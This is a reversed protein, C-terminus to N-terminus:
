SHPCFTECPPDFHRLQSLPRFTKELPSLTKGLPAFRRLPPCFSKIRAFRRVHPAFRRSNPHSVDHPPALRRHNSIDQLGQFPLLLNQSHGMNYLQQFPSPNNHPTSQSPLNPNIRFNNSFASINSLYHPTVKFM